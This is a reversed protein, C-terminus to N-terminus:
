SMLEKFKKQAKNLCTSNTINIHPPLSQITQCGNHNHQHTFTVVLLNQKELSDQKEKRQALTQLKKSQTPINIHPLSLFSTDM